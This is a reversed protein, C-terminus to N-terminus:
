DDPSVFCLDSLSVCSQKSEKFIGFGRQMLFLDQTLDGKLRDWVSSVCKRERKVKVTVFTFCFHYFWITPFQNLLHQSQPIPHLSEPTKWPQCHKEVEFIAEIYVRGSKLKKLIRSIKRHNSLGEIAENRITDVDIALM